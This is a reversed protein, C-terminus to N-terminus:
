VRKRNRLQLYVAIGYFLFGIGISSIIWYLPFLLLWGGLMHDTNGGEFNKAYWELFGFVPSNLYGVISHFGDKWVICGVIACIHLLAM